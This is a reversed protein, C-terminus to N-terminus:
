NQISWSQEKDNLFINKDNNDLHKKHHDLTLQLQSIKCASSKGATNNKILM